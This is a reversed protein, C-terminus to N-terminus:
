LDDKSERAKALLFRNMEKKSKNPRKVLLDLDEKPSTSDKNKKKNM